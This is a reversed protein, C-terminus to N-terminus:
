EKAEDKASHQFNRFAKVCSDKLKGFRGAGFILLIVAGILVWELWGPLILGLYM